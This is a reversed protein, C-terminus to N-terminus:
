VGPLFIATFGTQTNCQHTTGSGVLVKAQLKLTHSGAAAVALTLTQPVNIRTGVWPTEYLGVPAAASGDLVVIGEIYENATNVILDFVANVVLTGAAAATFTVTAGPVDQATGTLTLLTTCRATLVQVGQVAPSPAAVRTRAYGSM